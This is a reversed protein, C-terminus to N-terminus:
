WVGRLPSKDAVFRPGEGTDIRAAANGRRLGGSRIADASGSLGAKHRFRGPLWNSVASVSAEPTGATPTGLIPSLYLRGCLKSSHPMRGRATSQPGHPAARHWCSVELVSVGPRAAKQLDAKQGGGAVGPPRWPFRSKM